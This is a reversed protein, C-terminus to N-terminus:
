HTSTGKLLTFILNISGTLVSTVARAWHISHHGTFWLTVPEIGLWPVNIPQPGPGWYHISLLCGCMSTERGRKRGGERERFIFLVKLFFSTYRLSCFYIKMCIEPSWPFHAGSLGSQMPTVIDEVDLLSWSEQWPSKCVQIWLFYFISQYIQQHWKKPLCRRFSETRIKAWDTSQGSKKLSLLYFCM